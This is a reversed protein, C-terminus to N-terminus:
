QQLQPVPWSHDVHHPIRLVQALVAVEPPLLLGVVPPDLLQLRLEFNKFQQRDLGLSNKEWLPEFDWPTWLLRENQEM